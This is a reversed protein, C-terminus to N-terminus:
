RTSLLSRAEPIYIKGNGFNDFSVDFPKTVINCSRCEIQVDSSSMPIAPDSTKYIHMLISDGIWRHEGVHYVDPNKQNNFGGNSVDRIIGCGSILYSTLLLLYSTLTRIYLRNM